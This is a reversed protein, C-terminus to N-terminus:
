SEEEMDMYNDDDKVIQELVKFDWSKHKFTHWGPKNIRVCVGEKPHRSDIPDEGETLKDIYDIAMDRVTRIDDGEPHLRTLEPVHKINHHNCWSVVEDWTWDVTKGDALVWVIRYVYVDFEGDACGYTYTITDGYKKRLQKNNSRKTPQRPMIPQNPGEFGVVEYYVIMHDELFPIIKAAAKARMDPCHYGEKGKDNLVVRRTGNLVKVENESIPIGLRRLFREFWNLERNALVRGTRQSTNHILINNAYFNNTASVTLDYRDNKKRLKTIKTIKKYKMPKRHLLNCSEM